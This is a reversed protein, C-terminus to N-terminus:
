YRGQIGMVVRNLRGLTGELYLTAPGRMWSLSPGVEIRPRPNGGLFTKTDISDPRIDLPSSGPGSGKWLMQAQLAAYWGSMARAYIRGTLTQSNPGEQNGLPRDFNLTQSTNAQYHTYVWPEVRAYEAIAGCRLNAIDRIGHVGALWAWKNGWYDSFISTPSQVDDILFESYLAGVGPARWSADFAINGNNLREKEYYKAIFLPVVPVFLFPASEKFLILQESIGLLLNASPQWEYRHAYLHRADTSVNTDWDNGIVLQGYLSQVTVPGLRTTFAIQDFPIANQNFVLNSFIGPGWQVADRGVSIRGWDWDYDVNARYRAYSTYAVSGSQAESQRDVPEGDYDAPVSSESSESYLRADMAFSVPGSAGDTKLGVELSGVNGGLYRYELGGIPSVRLERRSGSDSYRWGGDERCIQSSDVLSRCPRPLIYSRPADGDLMRHYEAEVLHSEPERLTYPRDLPANANAWALGPMCFWLLHNGTPSIKRM